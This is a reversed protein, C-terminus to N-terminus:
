QFIALIRHDPFLHPTVWKKGCFVKYNKMKMNDVFFYPLAKLSLVRNWWGSFCPCRNDKPGRKRKKGIRGHPAELTHGSRMVYGRERERKQAESGLVDASSANCVVLCSNRGTTTALRWLHWAGRSAINGNAPYPSCSLFWTLNRHEKGVPELYGFCVPRSSDMQCPHTHHKHHLAANVVLVLNSSSEYSSFYM